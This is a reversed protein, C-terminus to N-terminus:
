QSLLTSLTFPDFKGFMEMLGLFKGNNPQYLVDTSGRFVDNHKALFHIAEIIRKLVERWHNKEKEIVIQHAKDITKLKGLRLRLESWDLASKVHARSIEHTKLRESLHKWGSLGINALFSIRLNTEHSPFLKCCFYYVCDCSISYVLRQRDIFEGNSLKRSYFSNSFQREAKDIKSLLYKMDIKRKPGLKVIEARLDSNISDPWNYPDTLDNNKIPSLITTSDLNHSIPEESIENSHPFFIDVNENLIEEENNFNDNSCSSQSSQLFQLM